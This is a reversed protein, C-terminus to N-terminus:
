QNQNKDDDSRIRLSHAIIVSLIVRLRASSTRSRKLKKTRLIGEFLAICKFVCVIHMAYEFAPLFVKAHFNLSNFCITGNATKFSSPRQPQIILFGDTFLLELPINMENAIRKKRTQIRQIRKNHQATFKYSTPDKWCFFFLRAAPKVRLFILIRSFHMAIVVFFAVFITAIVNFNM